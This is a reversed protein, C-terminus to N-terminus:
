EERGSLIAVKIFPIVGNRPTTGSSFIICNIYDMTYIMIQQTVGFLRAFNVLFRTSSIGIFVVILRKAEGREVNYIYIYVKEM